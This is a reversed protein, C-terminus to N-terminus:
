IWQAGAQRQAAKVPVGPKHFAFTSNGSPQAAGAEATRWMDLEQERAAKKAAKKEKKLAKKEERSLKPFESEPGILVMGPHVVCFLTLALLMPLADLNIMYVEDYPLPNSPVFGGALEALRYAIRVTILALVGYITWVMWRWTGDRGELMAGYRELKWMKSHFALVIVTFICIFFEQTAIGAMYWNLGQKMTEKSAGPSLMVGGIGQLIFGLIDALVFYRALLPAKIKFIQRQPLYFHVLRGATM